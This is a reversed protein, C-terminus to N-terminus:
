VLVIGVDRGGVIRNVGARREIRREGGGALQAPVHDGHVLARSADLRDIAREPEAEDVVDDDPHARGSGAAPDVDTRHGPPADAVHAGVGRADAGEERLEVLLDACGVLRDTAGATKRTSTEPPQATGRACISLLRRATLRVKRATSGRGGGGAQSGGRSAF